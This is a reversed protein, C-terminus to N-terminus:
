NLRYTEPNDPVSHRINSFNLHSRLTPFVAITNSTSRMATPNRIEQYSASKQSNLHVGQSFPALNVASTIVTLQYAQLPIDSCDKIIWVARPKMSGILMYSTLQKTSNSVECASTASFINFPKVIRAQITPPPM